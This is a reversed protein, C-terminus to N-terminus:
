SVMVRESILRNVSKAAQAPQAPFTLM